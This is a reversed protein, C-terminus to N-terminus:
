RSRAQSSTAPGQHRRRRCRSRASSTPGRALLFAVRRAVDTHGEPTEMNVTDAPQAANGIGIAVGVRTADDGYKRRNRMKALKM